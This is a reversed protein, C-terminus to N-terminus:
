QIAPAESLYRCGDYNETGNWDTSQGTAYMYNMYDDELIQSGRPTPPYDSNDWGTILTGGIACNETYATASRAAGVLWGVPTEGAEISCYCQSNQILANGTWVGAIGGFNPTTYTCKYTLNGLNTVNNIVLNAKNNADVRVYGVVGGGAYTKASGEFKLNAYNVCNILNTDTTKTTQRLHGAIGGAYVSATTGAIEMLGYNDCGNITGISYAYGVVGGISVTSSSLKTQKILGYNDCNLLEIAAGSPGGAIGGIDYNTTVNGGGCIVASELNTCNEIVALGQPCGTIGAVCIESKSDAMCAISGGNKCATIKHTGTTNTTAVIGAVDVRNITEAATYEVAGYNECSTLVANGAPNYGLIGAIHARVDKNCGGKGTQKVGGHNVCSTINVGNASFGLIGAVGLGAPATGITVLGKTADGSVGNTCGSITNTTGSTYGVIGGLFYTHYYTTTKGDDSVTNSNATQEGSCTVSGTNISNKITLTNAPEYEGIIGGMRLVGTLIGENAVVGHNECKDITLSGASTYGVIGGLRPNLSAGQQKIPGYNKCSSITMTKAVMGMIGGIGTGGPVNGITIAGKTASNVEGNVCGSVSLKDQNSYGVIGGIAYSNGTSTQEGELKIIGTNKTGTIITPNAGDDSGLIGAMRISTVIGKNTITGKNECNTIKFTGKNTDCGVIGGIKLQETSTTNITIAGENVCNKYELVAMNVVGLLGGLRPYGKSTYTGSVNVAGYNHVGDFVVSDLSDTAAAYAESTLGGIQASGIKGVPAVNVDAYNASETMTVVQNTINATQGIYGFLGGIMYRSTWDGTKITITASKQNYCKSITGASVSHIVGGILLRQGNGTGKTNTVKGVTITGSNTCNTVIPTQTVASLYNVVGSLAVVGTVTIDDGISIAGSNHCDSMTENVYFTAASAVGAMYASTVKAKNAITINATNSCGTIREVTSEAAVIGALSAGGGTSNAEVTIAGSNVCNTLENSTLAAAFLGGIVISGMNSGAAVKIEATNRCNTFSAATKYAVIGTLTLGGSKGNHTIAGNNILKDCVFDASNPIAGTIGSMLLSNGCVSSATTYIAGNNTCNSLEAIAKLGSVSNEKGLIGSMYINQKQTTGNYVVDGNNILGNFKSGNAAGGVVGGFTAKCSLDASCFSTATVTLNNTSNAITANGAYGVLGGYCLDDYQNSIQDSAFTTNNITFTGSASCNSVTGDYLECVIAGAKVQETIEIAVDTLKVNKITAATTGFLPATLGKIEYEGGDFVYAGFGQIPTWTEGTMDIPAVVKATIYPAFDAALQAFQMLAEKSDILFIDGDGANAKYTFEAFERVAGAKVPKTASDFTLKMIDTTSNLLLSIKGYNGAPVAVYIPTAEDGKLELGDGFSVTVVDVADEHATLAGTLCDVDFNGALKGNEATVTLNRLTVGEGKVSLCLVGALHNLQIASEADVAYGYMPAAGACFSGAVYEQNALFTVPYLGEAATVGEAPAPYVVSYPHTLESGFVFSASAAGAQEATLPTSVVGNVAIADGKSWVVPYLDGVKEGLQTRSEELSITLTTQGEGTGLQVGLDETTDTTCSLAFLAVVSAFIKALNKM